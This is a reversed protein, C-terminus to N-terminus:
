SGSKAFWRSLQPVLSEHTYHYRMPTISVEGRQVAAVDTNPTDPVDLAEGAYRYCMQGSEDQTVTFIDEYGRAGLETVAWAAQSLNHAPFNVNLFVDPEFQWQFARQCIAHAVAAAEEYPYPPGALSFAIAPIHQLAAEGAAALTGSYLVDTALNAGENIGSVMFDLTQDRGFQAIAWKVCDVPTGSLSWATVGRVGLAVPKAYLARNISIGHSSASRQSDPAVVIVDGLQAAVQILVRIGPAEIGDDNSVLIRM